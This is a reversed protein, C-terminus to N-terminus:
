AATGPPVDPVTAGNIAIVGAGILGLSQTAKAEDDFYIMLYPRGSGPDEISVAWAMGIKPFDEPGSMAVQLRDTKFTPM